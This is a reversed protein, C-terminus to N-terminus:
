HRETRAVRRASFRVLVDVDQDDDYYQFQHPKGTGSTTSQSIPAYNGSPLYHGGMQPPVGTPWKSNQHGAPLSTTATTVCVQRWVRM